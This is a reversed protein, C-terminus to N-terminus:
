GGTVIRTLYAQISKLFDRSLNKEIERYAVNVAQIESIGNERSQKQYTAIATGSEDYLAIDAMWQVSKFQPNLEIPQLSWSGKVALIGREQYSLAM